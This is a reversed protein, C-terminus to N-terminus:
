SLSKCLTQQRRCNELSNTPLSSMCHWGYQRRKSRERTRNAGAISRRCSCGRRCDTGNGDDCVSWVHKKACIERECSGRKSRTSRSDSSSCSSVISSSALKHSHTSCTFSSRYSLTHTDPYRYRHRHRRVMHVGTQRRRKSERGRKRPAHTSRHLSDTLSQRRRLLRPPSHTHTHTDTHVCDDQIRPTDERRESIHRRESRELM